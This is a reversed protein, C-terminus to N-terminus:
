RPVTADPDTFVADPLEQWVHIQWDHGRGRSTSLLIRGFRRWGEWPLTFRPEPDERTPFYSWQEVLGSDRAVYVLYRNQPTVGVQDFTLELVDATRDDPLRGEGVYRLHVGPDLLKYPMFMWYSDNVWMRWGAELAEALEEGQLERGARWARGRRSNLNMLILTEPGRESAPVEIRLNGTWRDWVHRRGGFFTWGLYRTAEWAERGGMAELVAEAIRQAEPDAQKRARAAAPIAAGGAATPEVTGAATVGAPARGAAAAPHAVVLLTTATMLAAAHAARRGGRRTRAVPSASSRRTRLVPRTM